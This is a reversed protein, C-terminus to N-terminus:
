GLTLGRPTEITKVGAGSLRSVLDAAAPDRTGIAQLSASLQALPMVGRSGDRGPANSASPVETLNRARQDTATSM